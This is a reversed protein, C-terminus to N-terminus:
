NDLSQRLFRGVSELARAAQPLEPGRAQFVHSMGPTIELTVAVDAAALRSALRTSDGLLVEHSGAQVLTPPLGALDAFLPSVLPRDADAGGIYAQFGAQLADATVVPDVAAKTHYSESAMTLDSAASFVVAARPLPLGADRVAVLLALTLTGGASEGGVALDDVPVEDLVARYAALADDLPAPYPHEPALRYDISLVRTGSARAVHAAPALANRPSGAVFAGGHIWLAAGRPRTGEITVELAPIGGLTTDRLRVDDAVPRSAMVEAFFRRQRDILETMKQTDLM